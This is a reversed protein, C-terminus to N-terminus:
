IQIRYVTPVSEVSAVPRLVLTFNLGVKSKWEGSPTRRLTERVCKYRGVAYDRRYQLVLV